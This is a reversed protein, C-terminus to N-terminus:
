EFIFNNEIKHCKHSFFIISFFFLEGKKTKNYSGPAFSIKDM